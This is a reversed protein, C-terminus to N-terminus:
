RYFRFRPGIRFRQLRHQTIHHQYPLNWVDREGHSLTSTDGAPVLGPSPRHLLPAQNIYTSSGGAVGEGQYSCLSYESEGPPLPPKIHSAWSSDANGTTTSIDNQTLAGAADANTTISLDNQTSAWAADAHTRGTCGVGRARCARLMRGAYPDDVNVVALGDEALTAFLVAKADAYADMTRHYDLHDGTLNTFVGVKSALAAVRGQHLAHSSYEAVAFKCGHDVM